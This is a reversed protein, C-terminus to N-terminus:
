RQLQAYGNLGRKCQGTQMIGCELSGDICTSCAQRTAMTYHQPWLQLSVDSDACGGEFMFRKNRAQVGRVPFRHNRLISAAERSTMSIAACEGSSISQSARESPQKTAICQCRVDAM